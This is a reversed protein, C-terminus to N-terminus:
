HKASLRSFLATKARTWLKLALKGMPCGRVLKVAYWLPYLLKTLLRIMLNPKCEEEKKYFSDFREFMEETFILTQPFPRYREAKERACKEKLEEFLWDPCPVMKGLCKKVKAQHEEPTPVKCEQEETYTGDKPHFIASM